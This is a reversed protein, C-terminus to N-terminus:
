PSVEAVMASLARREIALQQASQQDRPLRNFTGVHDDAMDNRLERSIVWRQNHLYVHAVRHEGLCFDIANILEIMSTARWHMGATGRYAHHESM